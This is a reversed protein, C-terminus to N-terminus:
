DRHGTLSVAGGSWVHAVDGCVAAGGVGSAASSRNKAFGTCGASSASNPVEFASHMCLADGEIDCRRYWSCDGADASFSVLRVSQPRRAEHEGGVRPVSPVCCM